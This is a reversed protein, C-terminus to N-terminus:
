YTARFTSNEVLAFSAEGKESGEGDSLAEEQALRSEDHLLHLEVGAGGEVAM